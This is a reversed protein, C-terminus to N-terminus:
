KLEESTKNIPQEEKAPTTEKNVVTETNTTPESVHEEQKLPQDPQTKAPETKDEKLPEKPIENPVPEEVNETKPVDTSTPEKPVTETTTNDTNHSDTGESPISPDQTPESNEEVPDQVIPKSESQGFVVGEKNYQMGFHREKMGEFGPEKKISDADLANKSIPAIRGVAPIEMSVLQQKPILPNEIKFRIDAISDLSINVLVPDGDDYTPYTLCNYQQDIKFSEKGVTELQIRSGADNIICHINKVGGNKNILGTIQEYTMPM